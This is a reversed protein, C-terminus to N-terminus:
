IEGAQIKMRSKDKGLLAVRSEFKDGLFQYEPLFKLLKRSFEIIEKHTPM